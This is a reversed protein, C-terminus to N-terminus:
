ERATGEFATRELEVRRVFGPERRPTSLKLKVRTADEVRWASGDRSVGDGTLRARVESRKPGPSGKRGRVGQDLHVRWIGADLMLSQEVTKGRSVRVALRGESDEVAPTDDSAAFLYGPVTIRNASRLMGIKESDRYVWTRYFTAPRGTVFVVHDYSEQFTPTDFMERGGRFKPRGHDSPVGFLVLDPKRSLV